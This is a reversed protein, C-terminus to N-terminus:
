LAFVDFFHICENINYRADYFYEMIKRELNHQLNNNRTAFFHIIFFGSLM